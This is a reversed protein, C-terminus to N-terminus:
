MKKKQWLTLVEPEGETILVMHEFHCSLSGDETVVTWGDSLTKVRWGGINVM